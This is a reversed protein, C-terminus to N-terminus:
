STFDVAPIEFSFFSATYLCGPLLSVPFFAKLYELGTLFPLEFLKESNFFVFDVLGEEELYLYSDLDLDLDDDDDVLYREFDDLDDDLDLDEEL